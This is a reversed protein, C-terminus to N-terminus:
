NMYGGMKRLSLLTGFNHLLCCKQKRLKALSFLCFKVNVEIDTFLSNRNVFEYFTVLQQKSVVDQFFEKYTDSTAIGPPVVLGLRGKSNTISRATEVFVAFTNIDGGGCFENLGASIDDVRIL